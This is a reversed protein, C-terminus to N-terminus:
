PQTHGLSPSAAEGPLLQQPQPFAMKSQAGAGVPVHLVWLQTHAQSLFKLSEGPPGSSAGTLRLVLVSACELGPLSASGM